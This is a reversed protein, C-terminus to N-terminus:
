EEFPTGVGTIRAFDDNSDGAVAGTPTVDATADLDLKIARVFHETDSVFAQGSEDVGLLPDDVRQYGYYTNVISRDQLYMPDYDQLWRLSIGKYSAIGGYVDRPLSPAGTAFIFAGRVMAVAMDAPLEPSTVITFGFLAGLTAFRLARSANDDGVNQALNLKEEGLLASEWGSGLVLVRGQSPMRLKNCVERAKILTKRLDRGSVAGGITVRYPAEMLYDAAERELGRVVADTQAAMLDGWGDLDFDRQEDILKVGNYMNGGFSVSISREAYEDLVIPSSRDNRWGYTRYPLVGPVRVNVTDNKVGKFQEIGQKLFLNPLVLQNELAVVAAAAIKEPKVITHAM